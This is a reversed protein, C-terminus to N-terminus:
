WGEEVDLSRSRSCWAVGTACSPRHPSSYRNSRQEASRSSEDRAAQRLQMGRLGIPLPLPNLVRVTHTRTEGLVHFGQEDPNKLEAVQGM